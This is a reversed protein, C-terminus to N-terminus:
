TGLQRAVRELRVVIRTAEQLIQEMLLPGRVGNNGEDTGLTKLAERNRARPRRVETTNHSDRGM